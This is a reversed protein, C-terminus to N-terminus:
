SYVKVETPTMFSDHLYQLYQPRQQVSYVLAHAYGLHKRITSM